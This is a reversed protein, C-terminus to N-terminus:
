IKGGRASLFFDYNLDLLGCDDTAGALAFTVNPGIDVPILKECIQINSSISWIISLIIYM